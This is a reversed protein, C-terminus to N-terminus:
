NGRVHETNIRCAPLTTENAGDINYSDLINQTSAQAGAAPRHTGPDPCFPYANADLYEIVRADPDPDTSLDGLNTWALRKATVLLDLNAICAKRRSDARVKNYGLIGMFSLLGIIGIVVGIEVLTWGKNLRLPRMSKVSARPSASSHTKM